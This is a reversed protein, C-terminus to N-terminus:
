RATGVLVYFGVYVALAVAGVLWATRLAARRRPAPAANM